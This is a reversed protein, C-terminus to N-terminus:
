LALIWLTSWQVIAMNKKGTLGLWPGLRGLADSVLSAIEYGGHHWWSAVMIGGHREPPMYFFNYALGWGDLQLRAPQLHRINSGTKDLM